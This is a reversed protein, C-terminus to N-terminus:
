KNGTDINDTKKIFCYYFSMAAAILLASFALSRILLGSNIMGQLYHLTIQEDSATARIISVDVIKNWSIIIPSIVIVFIFTLISVVRLRKVRKNEHGMIFWYSITLGCHLVFLIGTLIFSMLPLVFFFENQFRTLGFLPMLPIQMFYLIAAACLSVIHLIFSVTIFIRIPKMELNM